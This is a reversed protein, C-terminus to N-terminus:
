LYNDWSLLYDTGARGLELGNRKDEVVVVPSDAEVVPSDAEVAPSDTHVVAPSDAEVAPSGTHVLGFPNGEQVESQTQVVGASLRDQLGASSPGMLHPIFYQYLFAYIKLHISRIVRL